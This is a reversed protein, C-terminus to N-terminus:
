LFLDQNLTEWKKKWRKIKFGKENNEQLIKDIYKNMKEVRKVQCIYKIM